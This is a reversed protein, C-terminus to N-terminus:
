ADEGAKARRVPEFWDASMFDGTSGKPVPRVRFGVGGQFCARETREIIKHETIGGSFDTTVKAGVQLARSANSM